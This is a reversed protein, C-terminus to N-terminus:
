LAPTTFLRKVTEGNSKVPLDVGPEYIGDGDDVFLLAFYNMDTELAEPLAIVMDEYVGPELLGSHGLVPGPAPGVSEHITVFGPKMLTAKVKVEKQNERSLTLVTLDSGTLEVPAYVVEPAKPALAFFLGVGLIMAALIVVGAIDGKKLMM